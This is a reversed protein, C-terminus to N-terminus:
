APQALEITDITERVKREITEMSFPKQLFFVNAELIGHRMVADDAYGSMFLIKTQPHKQELREALTRGSMGPMVVDTVVLDLPGSYDELLKLAAEGSGADLVKYGSHKLMRVILSRVVPEDEVVLITESAAKRDQTQSSAAPQPAASESVQPLYITFRTGAGVESQVVINGGSQKVIGYVTALGLGTGHGAEKTTFFPEFLHSRVEADMGSGTDSVSLAVQETLPVAGPKTEQRADCELLSTEVSLKGGTPMSDRANLILNMIVQELQGRDVRVMCPHDSLSIGFEIDEGILRLMMKHVGILVQNLDVVRPQLVQRRGFALLQRTLGAARDAARDVELVAERIEPDVRNRQLVAGSHGKIITLLNNFDHAVGGALRGVAEMKQAQRLQAALSERETIDRAIAQVGVTREGKRLLRNGVELAVRRQQKTVIEFEYAIGSAPPAATFMQRVMDRTEPAVIEELKRGLLEQRSYGSVREVAANVFVLRGELDLEYVLDLANDVLDRYRQESAAAQSVARALLIAQAMQVAATRAFLFWEDEVLRRTESVLLLLGMREAGMAIPVALASCSGTDAFFESVMEDPAKGSPFAVGPGDGLIRELLESHSALGDATRRDRIVGGVLHLSLRREPEGEPARLYVAGFSVGSAAVCGDLIESLTAGIHGTRTAISCIADLASLQAAQLTCRRTSEVNMIAQRELQRVARDLFGSPFPVIQALQKPPGSELAARLAAILEKFDPTRVVYQNAGVCEVLHLDMEALYAASYLVLPINLLQPDRRVTLCLEFGDFGGMFLDSAIADPPSRRAMELGSVADQAEDVQFGARSLFLSALRLQSPDDDVVLIRRRGAAPLTGENPVALHMRVREALVSPTVPKVLFDDFGLSAVHAEELRTLLGSMALIPAQSLSRLTRVLKFGDMDPLSLDQLILHPQQQETLSIATQGDEAELVCYGETELAVRFMKRALANDEVVLIIPPNM